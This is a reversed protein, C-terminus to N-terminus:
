VLEWAIPVISAMLLAAMLINFVRVSRPAELVGRLAIGFITWTTASPV